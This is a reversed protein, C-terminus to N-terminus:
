KVKEAISDLKEKIEDMDDRIRVFSNKTTEKFKRMEGMFIGVKFNAIILYSLIIGVFASLTQIETPSDGVLSWVLLIIGFVSLILFVATLIWEIIKNEKM